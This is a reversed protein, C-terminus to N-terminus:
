EDKMRGGEDKSQYGNRNQRVTYDPNRAEIKVTHFRGDRRKEETPYFALLYSATVDEALSRFLPEFDKDTAYVNKGGTKEALDRVYRSGLEYEQRTYGTFEEENKQANASLGRQADEFPAFGKPATTQRAPTRAESPIQGKSM